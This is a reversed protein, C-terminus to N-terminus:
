TGIPLGGEVTSTSGDSNKVVATFRVELSRHLGKIFKISDVSQVEPVDAEIASTMDAAADNENFHKGLFNSYDAGMEPDLNVMEGYRIELTAKIRQAIEDLGDIMALDHTGPDIILNGDQDVKLDKAM